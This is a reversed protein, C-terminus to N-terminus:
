LKRFDDSAFKRAVKSHIDCGGGGKWISEGQLAVPLALEREAFSMVKLRPRKM